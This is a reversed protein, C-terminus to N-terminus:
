QRRSSGGDVEGRWGGSERGRAEIFKKVPCDVDIVKEIREM